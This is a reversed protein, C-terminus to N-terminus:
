KLARNLVSIYKTVALPLSYKDEALKLANISQNKHKQRDSTYNIFDNIVKDNLNAVNSPLCYGVGYEKIEEAQWGGYNILIPKGSALSDFYKNASNAWLEKIPIVFSSGMKCFSYLSFLEQKSVADLFFVNQNITKTRSALSVIKEHERGRGALIFVISSDLRLLKEALLVLYELGNVQGFAGAYLIPFVPPKMKVTEIISPGNGRPMLRFYKFNSINEIVSLKDNIREPRNNLISNAMDTSLTVIQSAHLYILNELGKLLSIIYKNKIAGIAIVAEPWVDRVEFIYPTRSIWRKLLAPIGITLPTSTALVIDAPLVIIKITAFVIFKLFSHIRQMTSYSNDYPIALAHVVIGDRKFRTWGSRKPYLKKDRITTIVTVELGNDVFAKALDYSRTGGTQDPFNFYQHLYLLKM